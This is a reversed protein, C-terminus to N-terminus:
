SINLKGKGTISITKTKTKEKELPVFSKKQKPESPPHRAKPRAGVGSDSEEVTNESDECSSYTNDVESTVRGAGPPCSEQSSYEDDAAESDCSSKGDFYLADKRPSSRVERQSLKSPTEDESDSVSLNSLINNIKGKLVPTEVKSEHIGLKVPSCEHNSITLLEKRSTKAHVINSWEPLTVSLKDCLSISTTNTGFELASLSEKPINESGNILENREPSRHNVSTLSRGQMRQLLRAKQGHIAVKKTM